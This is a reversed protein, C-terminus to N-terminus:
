LLGSSSISGSVSFSSFCLLGDVPSLYLILPLLGDSLSNIRHGCSLLDSGLFVGRGWSIETLTVPSPLLQKKKLLPVFLVLLIAMIFSVLKCVYYYYVVVFLYCYVM